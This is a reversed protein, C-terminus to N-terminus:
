RLRMICFSRMLSMGDRTLNAMWCPSVESSQNAERCCARSLLGAGPELRQGRLAPIGPPCTWTFYERLTEAVFEDGETSRRDSDELLELQRFMRRFIAM